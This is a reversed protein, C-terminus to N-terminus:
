QRDASRKEVLEALIRKHEANTLNYGKMPIVSLLMGIAPPISCLFFMMSAYEPFDAKFSAGAKLALNCAEVNDASFGVIAYGASSIISCIGTSLKTIFSQGSFFVGDPRNGNTYEEYDVTDAIMVTQLVNLVGTGAGSIAFLVFCVAVWFPQDLSTPALKYVVYILGYPVGGIISSWVYLKKKDMKESLKPAVAMAAFMGVFISGGLVAMYVLYNGYYNGYYYSLLTMAINQLLLSPSRLVGSVLLARFPKNDWMMKFNQKLSNTEGEPQEVHEKTFLGTMQFMVTGIVTFVLAVLIFGVQQSKKEGVVGELAIGVAQSAPTILALVLGGGVGAVVRALAILNSRDKEVETMLSIIGWLPIDGVTYSMGWLIYSIAAWGIIFARKALSADASYMSNCFCLVTIIGIIAPCYLLYPRCKGYKTRTKDVITGMMPDNIADWIRAIAMFIGTAMAPLFIVSQLYFYLGTGIIQYIMNQGILGVLYMNREKTTYTKM